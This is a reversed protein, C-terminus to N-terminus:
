PYKRGPQCLPLEVLLFFLLVMTLFCEHLPSNVLRCITIIVTVIHVFLYSCLGIIRCYCCALLANERSRILDRNRLGRKVVRSVPSLLAGMDTISPTKLLHYNDRSGQSHEIHPNIMISSVALYISIDIILCGRLYAPILAPVFHATRHTAKRVRRYNSDRM